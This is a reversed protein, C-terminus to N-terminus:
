FTRECTYQVLFVTLEADRDEPHQAYYKDATENQSAGYKLPITVVKKRISRNQELQNLRKEFNRVM